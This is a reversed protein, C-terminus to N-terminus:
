YIMVNIIFISKIYPSPEYFNAIKYYVKIFQGEYKVNFNM